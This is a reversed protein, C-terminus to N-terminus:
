QGIFEYTCKYKRQRYDPYKKKEDVAESLLLGHHPSNAHEHYQVAAQPLMKMVFGEKEVLVWGNEEEDDNLAVTIEDQFM